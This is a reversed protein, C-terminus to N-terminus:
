KTEPSGSGLTYRGDNKKNRSIFEVFRFPLKAQVMKRCFSLQANFCSIFQAMFKNSNIQV